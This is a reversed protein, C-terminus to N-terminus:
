KQKKCNIQSKAGGYVFDEILHSRKSSIEGLSSMLPNNIFINPISIFFIIKARETAPKEM